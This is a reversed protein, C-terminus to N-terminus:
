CLWRSNLPYSSTIILNSVAYDLKELWPRIKQIHVQNAANQVFRTESRGLMIISAEAEANRSGIWIMRSHPQRRLYPPRYWKCSQAQGPLSEISAVIGVSAPRVRLLWGTVGLVFAACVILCSLCSAKRDLRFAM